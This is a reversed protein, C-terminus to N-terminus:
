YHLFSNETDVEKSKLDLKALPVGEVLTTLAININVAYM